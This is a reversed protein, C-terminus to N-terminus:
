RLLVPDVRTNCVQKLLTTKGANAKSIILIYFHTYKARLKVAEEPIMTITPAPNVPPVLDTSLQFNSVRSWSAVHSRSFGCHHSSSSSCACAHRCPWLWSQLRLFPWLRLLLPHLRIWAAKPCAGLWCDLDLSGRWDNPLNPSQLFLPCLCIRAAKARHDLDLSRWDIPVSPSKPLRPANM